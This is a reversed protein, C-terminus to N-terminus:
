QTARINSTKLNKKDSERYILAVKGIEQVLISESQQTLSQLLQKRYERDNVALKVKILEHDYLARALENMLNESLGNDSVTVVPKLHHGIQRFQKITERTLSM